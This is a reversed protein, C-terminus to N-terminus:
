HFVILANFRLSLSAAEFLAYWVLRERWLPAGDEINQLEAECEPTPRGEASLPVGIHAAIELLERLLGQSSGLMGGPVEDDFIPDAFDVPVYYGEADSHCLLHSDLMMSADEAVADHEPQLQEDDPIPLGLRAHAFARRLYHLFSYPFSTCSRRLEFLPTEFREPERHAPLGARALVQDIAALERRFWQAGEADNRDLDDLLGVGIALGM